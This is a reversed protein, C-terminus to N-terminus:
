TPHRGAPNELETYGDPGPTYLTRPDFRNPEQGSAIRAVLDPTALFHRGFSVADCRGAEIEADAEVADYSDNAILVGDHLERALELNDLPGEHRRIVHLYALGMPRITSLLARFTEEVDGPHADILDNFTNGPCIRLGVMDAGIEDIMAELIEIPFAIRREVSGGYRDIRRNTGSSLFQAPLYGSTAHVEVADFGAEAALLAFRRYEGVVEVVEDTSLSRPEDFPRMGEVDTYMLGDAQIASPAVTEAGPAKNAAHSIRGCHMAQAVIRGGGAHVADTVARWGALRSPGDLVPTRCYGKGTESPAIGETIILGASARAAYHEKMLRTANGTVEARSRTMPAMIVRNSLTMNGAQLPALLHEM